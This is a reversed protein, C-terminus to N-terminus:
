HVLHHVHMCMTPHGNTRAIFKEVYKEPVMRRLPFARVCPRVVMRGASLDEHSIRPLPYTTRGTCINTWSTFCDQVSLSKFACRVPTSAGITLACTHCNYEPVRQGQRKEEPTTRTRMEVSYITSTTVHAVSVSRYRMYQASAATSQSMTSVDGGTKSHSLRRSRQLNFVNVHIM